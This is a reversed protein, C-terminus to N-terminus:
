SFEHLAHSSDLLKHLLKKIFLFWKQIPPNCGPPQAKDLSLAPTLHVWHNNQHHVPHTMTDVRQVCHAGDLSLFILSAINSTAETYLWQGYPSQSLMLVNHPVQGQYSASTSTHYTYRSGFPPPLRKLFDEDWDEPQTWHPVQVVEASHIFQDHNATDVTASLNQAVLWYQQHIIKVSSCKIIIQHSFILM